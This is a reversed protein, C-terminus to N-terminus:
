AITIGIEHALDAFQKRTVIIGRLNDRKLNMGTLTAGRFDTDSFRAERFSVNSVDADV